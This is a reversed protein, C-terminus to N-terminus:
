LQDSPPSICRTYVSIFLPLRWTSRPYILVEDVFPESSPRTVPAAPEDRGSRGVDILGQRVLSQM